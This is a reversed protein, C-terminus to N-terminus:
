EVNNNLADYKRFTGFFKVIGFTNGEYEDNM